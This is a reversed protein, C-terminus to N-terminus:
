QKREKLTKTSVNVFFHISLYYMLRMPWLPSLISDWGLRGSLKPSKRPHVDSDFNLRLKDRAWSGAGAGGLQSSPPTSQAGSSSSTGGTNERRNGDIGESSSYFPHFYSAPM